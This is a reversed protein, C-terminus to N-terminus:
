AEHTARCPLRLTFCAGGGPRDEYWLAGGQSDMLQRAIALGFGRGGAHTSTASRRGHEFIRERLHRAVGPGRDAVRVVISDGDREATIDVPSGPAHRDANVLLQQVVQAIHAASGWGYLDPSVACHVRMGGANACVVIPDLADAVAFSAPREALPACDLLTRLRTIEAQLAAALAERTDGGLRDRYRELTGTASEIALLASSAEHAREEQATRLSHVLAQAKLATVQSALMQHRQAAFAQQTDRYSGLVGLLLAAPCVADLPPASNALVPVTMALEGLALGVLMIGTWAFLYRGDQIGLVAYTVGLGFLLLAPLADGLSAVPSAHLLTILAVSTVLTVLVAWAANSGTGLPPLLLAHGLLAIVILRSLSQLAPLANQGGGTLQYADTIGLTGMGYLGIALGIYLAQTDSAVRWRLLCLVAAAAALSVTLERLPDRLWRGLSQDPRVGAVPTFLLLFLMLLLLGGAILSWARASSPYPQGRSSVNAHIIM